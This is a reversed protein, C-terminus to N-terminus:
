SPMPAVGQVMADQMAHTFSSDAAPIYANAASIGAVHSGHEGGTDYLHSVNLDADVYNFAFPVKSNRYLSDATVAEMREAANLQSLVAAITQAGMLELGAVYEEVALGAKEALLGLSYEYAAASFSQHELDLGTDIIAVRSGAGTYGAAYSLPAGTQVGSTAMDPDAPASSVVHPEYETEIVVKRVGAIKEITEIQGYRVNASILNAALTLNWVVDLEAGLKRSIAATVSEQETQLRARYAMAEANRAINQVSFGAQLTPRKELFISVRVIDSDAYDPTNDDPEKVQALMSASVSNNDVQTLRLQDDAGAAGIPVAFGALLALILLLSVTRKMAQKM